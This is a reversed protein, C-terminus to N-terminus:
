RLVACRVDPSAGSLDTWAVVGEGIVPAAQRYRGVAVQTILNHNLECMYIAYVNPERQDEWVITRGCVDPYRQPGPAECIVFSHRQRLDYGRIDPMGKRPSDQWVILDGDISPFEQRGPRTYVPFVERHRVDAAYIDFDAGRANQWVVVDGAIDPNLQPTDEYVCVSFERRTTLDCAYIDSDGHRTDEWVVINGSIAPRRQHGRHTCVAFEHQTRLNYGYIDHGSQRSNRSDEWVVIDDSIAPGTQAVAHPASWVIPEEPAGIRAAYFELHGSRWDIWVLRQGDIAPAYQPRPGEGLPFPTPHISGGLAFVLGVCYAVVDM